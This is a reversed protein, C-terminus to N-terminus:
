IALLVMLRGTSLFGCLLAGLVGVVAHRRTVATWLAVHLLAVLVFWPSYLTDTLYSGPFIGPWFWFDALVRRVRHSAIAAVVFPLWLAIVAYLGARGWSRRVGGRAPQALSRTLQRLDDPAWTAYALMMVFLSLMLTFVDMYVILWSDDDRESATATERWVPPEPLRHKM